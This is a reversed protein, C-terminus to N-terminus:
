FAYRGSMHATQKGLMEGVIEWAKRISTKKLEHELEHTRSIEPMVECYSFLLFFKHGTEPYNSTETSRQLSPWLPEKASIIGQVLSLYTLFIGLILNFVLNPLWQDQLTPSKPTQVSVIIYM